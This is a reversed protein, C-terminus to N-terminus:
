QFKGKFQKYRQVSSRDEFEIYECSKVKKGCGFYKWSYQAITQFLLGYSELIVCNTSKTSLPKSNQFLSFM